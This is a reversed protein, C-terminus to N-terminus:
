FLGAYHDKIEHLQTEKLREPEEGAWRCYFFIKAAKSLIDITDFAGTLSPAVATCGHKEWLTVKHSEFEKLTAQAIRDTGPIGYPVFGVGDPVFVIVEPHMSWLLKNISEASKYGSLHTLSILEPAHTHLVVKDHAGKQLLLQQVSLHTPLESTPKPTQDEPENSIIHYATCTESIYIFCCHPVPDTAIDRMKSGTRSVLFLQFALDSYERQIPLFPYATLKELEKESFLHTINISFNGANREAWGRQWLYGSIMAIEHFLLKVEKKNFVANNFQIRMDPNTM